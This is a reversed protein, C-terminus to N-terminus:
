GTLRHNHPDETRRERRAPLSALLVRNAAAWATTAESFDALPHDATALLFMVLVHMARKPTNKGIVLLNMGSQLMRGQATYVTWFWSRDEPALHGDPQRNRPHRPDAAAARCRANRFPQEGPRSEGLRLVRGSRVTSDSTRHVRSGPASADAGPGGRTRAEGTTGRPPRGPSGM